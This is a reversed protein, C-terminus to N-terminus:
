RESSTRREKEFARWSDRPEWNKVAEVNGVHVAKTITYTHALEEVAREVFGESLPRGADNWAEQAATQRGRKEELIPDIPTVSFLTSTHIVNLRYQYREVAAIGDEGCLTEARSKLNTFFTTQEASTSLLTAM